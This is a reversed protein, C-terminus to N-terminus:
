RRKGYYQNYYPTPSKTRPIQSASPVGHRLQQAFGYNTHGVNGQLKRQQVYARGETQFATRREQEPRVYQYYSSTSSRRSLSAYPNVSQKKYFYKDYLFRNVSNGPGVGGPTRANKQYYSGYSQPTQAVAQSVLLLGAFGALLVLSLFLTAPKRM